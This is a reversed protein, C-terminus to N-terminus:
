STPGVAQMSFPHKFKFGTYSHANWTDSRNKETATQHKKVVVSTMRKKPETKSSIIKVAKGDLLSRRNKTNVNDGNKIQYLKSELYPKREGSSLKDEQRLHRAINQVGVKQCIPCIRTYSYPM